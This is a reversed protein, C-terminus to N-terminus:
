KLLPLNLEHLLLRPVGRRLRFHLRIYVPCRAQSPPPKLRDLAPPHGTKTCVKDLQEQGLGKAGRLDADSLDAETLDAKALNADELDAERLDARPLRAGTLDAEVLDTGGLHADGLDARELHAGEMSTTELDTGDLHAATLHADELDAGWLHAGGMDAGELRARELHARELHAGELDASDLVAEELDADAANVGRLDQKGLDAKRLHLPRSPPKASWLVALCAFTVLALWRIPSWIRSNRDAQRRMLLFVSVIVSAGSLAILLPAESRPLAKWAFAALIVPVLWYFLFWSLAAAARGCLNFVFPLNPAVASSGEPAAPRQGSLETWYGVFIHLYFFFAMLVLPGILLFAVFSIETNAFPLHITADSALLSRDPQGLALACYFAFAILGLLLKNISKSVEDHQKRWDAESLNIERPLPRWWKRPWRRRDALRVGARWVWGSTPEHPEPPPEEASHAAGLDRDDSPSADAM